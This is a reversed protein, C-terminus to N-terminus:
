HSCWVLSFCTIFLLRIRILLRVPCRYGASMYANRIVSLLIEASFASNSACVGCPVCCRVQLRGKWKKRELSSSWDRPHLWAFCETCGPNTQPYTGSAGVDGASSTSAMESDIGRTGPPQQSRSRNPGARPVRSEPPPLPLPLPPTAAALCLSSLVPRVRACFTTCPGAWGWTLLIFGMRGLEWWCLGM